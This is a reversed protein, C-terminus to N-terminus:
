FHHGYKGVKCYVLLVVFNERGFFIDAVLVEYANKVPTDLPKADTTM